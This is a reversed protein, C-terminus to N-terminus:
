VWQHIFRRQNLGKVVKKTPIELDVSSGNDVALSTLTVSTKAEM